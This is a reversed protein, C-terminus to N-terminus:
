WRQDASLSDSWPKMPTGQIGVTVIRFALAPTVDRMADMRGIPPPALAGAVAPGGGGTVGHCSACKAQYLVRGAAFDIPRTPLGLAGEAGLAQTFTDYFRRLDAPPVRRAAAGAISDLAARVASATPTSLRAAVERAEKLFGAAEELEVTSILKGSADVGKAYEEVAVGVIASLRKGVPEQPAAGITCIAVMALAILSTRIHPQPHQEM